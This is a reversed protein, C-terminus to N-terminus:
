GVGGFDGELFVQDDLAFGLDAVDLGADGFEVLQEAIDRGDHALLPIHDIGNIHIHLRDPIIRPARIHLQPLRTPILPIRPILRTTQQHNHRHHKQHNHQSNNQPLIISLPSQNTPKPAHLLM